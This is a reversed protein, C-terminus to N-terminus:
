VNEGRRLDDGDQLSTRLADRVSADPDARTSGAADARDAAIWM